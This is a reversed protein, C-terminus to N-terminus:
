TLDADVAGQAPAGGGHVQGAAPRGAPGLLRSNRVEVGGPFPLLLHRDVHRLPGTPRETPHGAVDVGDVHVRDGRLGEAERLRDDVPPPGGPARGPRPTSSPTGPRRSSIAKLRGITSGDVGIRHEREPEDPPTSNASNGTDGASPPSSGTRDRTDPTTVPQAGARPPTSLLVARARSPLIAATRPASPGGPPGSPITRRSGERSAIWRSATAERSPGSVGSAISAILVHRPWSNWRRSSMPSEIRSTTSCAWQTIAPGPQREAGTAGVRKVVSAWRPSSGTLDVEPVPQVPARRRLAHGVHDLGADTRRPDAAPPVLHDGEHPPPQMRQGGILLTPQQVTAGLDVGLSRRSRALDQTRRDELRGRGRRGVPQVRLGVLAPEGLDLGPHQGALVHEPARSFRHTCRLRRVTPERSSTSRWSAVVQEGM